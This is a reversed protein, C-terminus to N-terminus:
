ESLKKVIIKYDEPKIEEARVNENYGLANLIPLIAEWDEAKLNNKLTKRKNKFCEKIFLNYKTRDLSCSDKKKLKLVVSDVKPSPLFQEKGVKMLLESKYCYDVYLTLANYSKSNAKAVIREGYEKQVLLVISKVCDLDILKLLIPTTIYYPINSIVYINKIPIDKIDELVDRKLFDDYIIHVKDSRYSSLYEQMRFDIEYCVLYCRKQVLFETLAGMGPGIEIILDNELVEISDSIKKLIEKNKLFNQGYKKKAKIM